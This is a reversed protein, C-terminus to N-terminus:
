TKIAMRLFIHLGVHMNLNFINIEVKTKIFFSNICHIKLIILRVHIEAPAFIEEGGGGGGKWWLFKGLHREMGGEGDKQSLQKEM